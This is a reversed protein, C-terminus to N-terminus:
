VAGGYEVLYIIFWKTSIRLEFDIETLRKIEM